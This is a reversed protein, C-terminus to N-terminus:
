SPYRITTACSSPSNITQLVSSPIIKILDYKNLITNIIPLSYEKTNGRYDVILHTDQVQKVRGLIYKRNSRLGFVCDGVVFEPGQDYVRFSLISGADILSQDFPTTRRKFCNTQTKPVMHTWQYPPKGYTKQEMNEPGPRLVPASDTMHEEREDGPPLIVFRVSDVNMVYDKHIGRAHITTTGEMKTIEAIVFVGSDLLVVFDGPRYQFGYKPACLASGLPIVKRQQKMVVIAKRRTTTTRPTPSILEVRRPKLTKLTDLTRVVGVNFNRIDRQITGSFLNITIYWRIMDRFHETSTIRDINQKYLDLVFLSVSVCLGGEVDKNDNGQMLEQMGTPVVSEPKLDTPIEIYRKIVNWREEIIRNGRKRDEGNPEIYWLKHHAKNWIVANSHGLKPGNLGIWWVVIQKNMDADSGSWRYLRASTAHEFNDDSCIVDIDAAFGVIPSSIERPWFATLMSRMEADRLRNPRLIDKYSIFQLNMKRIQQQSPEDSVDARTRGDGFSFTSLKEWLLQNFPRDQYLISIVVGIRIADMVVRRQLIACLLDASYGVDRINVISRTLDAHGSMAKLIPGELLFPESGQHKSGWKWDLGGRLAGHFRYYTSTFVDCLKTWVDPEDITDVAGDLVVTLDADKQDVGTTKAYIDRIYRSFKNATDKLHINIQNIQQRQGQQKPNLQQQKPNPQRQQAAPPPGGSAVGQGQRKPNPQRQAPGSAVGQGQQRPNPQRQQAAPPPGGSAVRQRPNPRQQQRPNPQRQQPGSAVGQGQNPRQRGVAPPPGGSAVGQGQQRPNPQRQAPGSAVGQGPNPRGQGPASRVIVAKKTDISGQQNAGFYGAASPPPARKRNDLEAGVCDRARRTLLPLKWKKTLHNNFETIDNNVGQYNQMLQTIIQQRRWGTLAKWWEWDGRSLCGDLEPYRVRNSM